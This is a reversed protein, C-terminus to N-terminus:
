NIPATKERIHKLADNIKKQYCGRMTSEAIVSGIGVFLCIGGILPFSLFLGGGITYTLDAEGVMEAGDAVLKKYYKIDAYLSVIEAQYNINKQYNLLRMKFLFMGKALKILAKNMDNQWDVLSGTSKNNEDTNVYSSVKRNIIKVKDFM